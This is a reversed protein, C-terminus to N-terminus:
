RGAPPAASAASPGTTPAAPRPPWGWRAGCPTSRSSSRWGTAAALSGPHRGPQRGPLDPRPPRDAGPGAGAAHRGAAAGAGLQDLPRLRAAQRPQPHRGPALAEVRPAAAADRLAAGLRERRRRQRGRLLARAPRAARARAGGGRARRRPPHRAHADAPRGAAGGGRGDRLDQGRGRPPLLGDALAPGSRPRLGPRLLPRAERGGRRPPRGLPRPAGAGAGGAGRGRDHRAAEAAAAAGALALGGRDGRHRDRHGRSRRLVGGTGGTRQEPAEYRNNILIQGAPWSGAGSSESRKPITATALCGVPPLFAILPCLPALPRIQFVATHQQGAQERGPSHGGRGGRGPSRRRRGGRGSSRCPRCPSRRSGRRSCRSPLGETRVARRTRGRGDRSPSPEQRCSPRRRRWWSRGSGRWRCARCPSRCRRRPSPAAGPRRPRRGRRRRPRSRRGCRGRRPSTARHRGVRGGVRHQARGRDHAEVGVAAGIGAKAAAARQDGVEVERRGFRRAPPVRAGRDADGVQRDIRLVPDQDGAADHGFQAARPGDVRLPEDGPEGFATRDVRAETEM